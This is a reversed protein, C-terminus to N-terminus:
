VNSSWFLMEEDESKQQNREFKSEDLQTDVKDAYDEVNEIFSLESLEFQVNDSKFSKVKNEKCWEIFLKIDEMNKLM